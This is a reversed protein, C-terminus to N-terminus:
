NAFYYSLKQEIDKRYMDADTQTWANLSLKNTKNYAKTFVQRTCPPIYLQSIEKELGDQADVLGDAVLIYKRKRPFLANHYSRNTHSDLLTLNGIQMKNKGDPADDKIADETLKDYRRMIASYLRNFDERKKSENYKDELESINYKDGQENVADKLYENGLDQKISELWDQMDISKKFDSDTNSAIHEIDWSQKHLLEFPFQEYEKELHLHDDKHLQEFRQLITEINHMLFLLRLDKRSTNDYTYDAVSEHNTNKLIAKIKGKLYEKFQSHTCQGSQELLAKMRQIPNENSDYTLFGIYHYCYIDDYWDKLRLFIHRVNKWKESLSGIETKAFYNRFSWRSDVDYDSQTCNAVLNFLFDMRTQGARMKKGNIMYWFHDNQMEREMREFIAAAEMREYKPLGSERNLLLAKVLDTNTLHIKGSNLNRFTEYQKQQEVQYWIVQISKEDSRSELLDRFFQQLEEKIKNKLKEEKRRVEEEDQEEGYTRDHLIRNKAWKDFVADIHHFATYIYYFDINNEAKSEEVAAIEKLFERRTMLMDNTEDREYLLTYPSRNNLYVYLLYLTTLRQQGDLVIYKGDNSDVIALPQLCYVKKTPNTCQVFALLDDLLEEVNSKTWKYGRQQYPILFTMEKLDLFSKMPLEENNSMINNNEM